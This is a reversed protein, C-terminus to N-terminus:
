RAIEQGCCPCHSPSMLKARIADYDRKFKANTERLIIARKIAHRITTHDRGAFYRGLDHHSRGTMEAALLVAIFRVYYMEKSRRHALLASRTMQFHAATAFQINRISAALAPTDQKPEPEPQPEAIVPPAIPQATWAKANIRAIREKHAQQFSAAISM